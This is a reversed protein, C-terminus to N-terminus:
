SEAGFDELLKEGIRELTTDREVAWATFAAVYAAVDAAFILRTVNSRIQAPLPDVHELMADMRRAREAHLELLAQASESESSSAVDLGGDMAQAVLERFRRGFDLRYLDAIAVPRNM